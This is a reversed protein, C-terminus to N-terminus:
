QVRYIRSESSRIFRKYFATREANSGNVLIPYKKKLVEYDELPISLHYRGFSFDTIVGPNKQLEANRHLILDRDPQSRKVYLRDEHPQYKYELKWGDEYFTADRWNSQNSQLPM